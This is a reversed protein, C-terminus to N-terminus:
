QTIQPGTQQANEKGAELAYLIAGATAITREAIEQPTLNPNTAVGAAIRTIIDHTQMKSDLMARLSRNEAELVQLTKANFNTKGFSM